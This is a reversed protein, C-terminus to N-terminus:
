EGGDVPHIELYNPAGERQVLEVRVDQGADNPFDYADLDNGITLRRQDTGHLTYTGIAVCRNAERRRHNTAMDVTAILYAYVM